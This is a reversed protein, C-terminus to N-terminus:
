PACRTENQTLALTESRHCVLLLAELARLATGDKCSAHLLSSQVPQVLEETQTGANYFPPDSRLRPPPSM